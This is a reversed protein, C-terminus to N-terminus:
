VYTYEIFDKPDLFCDLKTQGQLHKLSGRSAESGLTLAEGMSEVDGANGRPTMRKRAWVSGGM